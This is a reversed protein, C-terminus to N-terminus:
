FSNQQHSTYFPKQDRQYPGKRLFQKLMRHLKKKITLSSKLSAINKLEGPDNEYDFLEEAITYKNKDLYITYRYRSTRVSHAIEYAKIRDHWQHKRHAYVAQKGGAKPNQLLALMSKGELYTPLPIDAMECLTPFIDVHETLHNEQLGQISPDPSHIILPVKLSTDWLNHKGWYGHEGTHFGHDSVIVIITREYLGKEKLSKILRGTMADIYSIAAYYGHMLELAQEENATWPKEYGNQTYYQAPESDGMAWPYTNDPISGNQPLKLEKRNYLDWYKKPSNWPLHGATYGVALFFPKEQELNNLYQLANDTTQGDFYVTDNGKGAEVPPGKVKRLGSPTLIDKDSVGTKKLSEIRSRIFEFSELNVWPNPSETNHIRMEEPTNVPLKPRRFPKSWSLPDDVDHFVLGAGYTQYGNNKFIEPLTQFGQKMRRRFGPLFPDNNFRETKLPRLGSFINARSPGCLPFQCFHRNFQISESALKDIFPTKILSNGYCGYRTGIDHTIIFLINNKKNNGAM